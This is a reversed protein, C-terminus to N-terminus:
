VVVMPENKKEEEKVKPQMMHVILLIIYPSVVLVWSINTFGKTCVFNLFWSWLVVFVFQGMVVTVSTKNVILLLLSIIALVFYILAPTCLKM